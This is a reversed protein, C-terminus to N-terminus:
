AAGEAAVIQAIRQCKEAARKRGERFSRDEDSLPLERALREDLKAIRRHAEAAQERIHRLDYPKPWLPTKRIHRLLEPAWGEEMAQQGLPNSFVARMLPSADDPPPQIAGAWKLLAAAIPFRDGSKGGPMNGAQHALAQLNLEGMYALRQRLEKKMVDYAAVTMGGPRQLGLAELPEILLEQVRKEGAAQEKVNM